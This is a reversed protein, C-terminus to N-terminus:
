TQQVGAWAALQTKQVRGEARKGATGSGAVVCAARLARLTQSSRGGSGALVGGAGMRGRARKGGRASTSSSHPSASTSASASTAIGCTADGDTVARGDSLRDGFGGQRM